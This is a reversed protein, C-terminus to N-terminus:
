LEESRPQEEEAGASEVVYAVAAPAAYSAVAHAVPAYAAAVPAPAPSSSEAGAFVEDEPPAALADALRMELERIRSKLEDVEDALLEFRLEVARHRAEEAM